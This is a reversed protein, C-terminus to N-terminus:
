SKNYVVQPLVELKGLSIQVNQKFKESKIMCILSATKASFLCIMIYPMPQSRQSVARIAFLRPPGWPEVKAALTKPGASRSASPSESFAGGGRLAWLAALAAASKAAFSAKRLAAPVPRAPGKASQSISATRSSLPAGSYRKEPPLARHISSCWRLAFSERLWSPPMASAKQMRSVSVQNERRCVILALQGRTCLRGGAQGYYPWLVAGRVVYRAEWYALLSNEHLYVSSFNEVGVKRGDDAGFLATDARHEDHLIDQQLFNPTEIEDPLSALAENDNNTDWMISKILM